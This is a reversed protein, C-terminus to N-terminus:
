EYVASSYRSYILHYSGFTRWRQTMDVVVSTVNRADVTPTYVTDPEYVMILYVWRWNCCFYLSRIGHFYVFDAVEGVGHTNHIYKRSFSVSAHVNSPRVNFRFLLVSLLPRSLWSIRPTQFRPAFFDRARQGRGTSRRRTNVCERIPHCHRAVARASASRRKARCLTYM